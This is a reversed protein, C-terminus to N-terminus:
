ALQARKRLQPLYLTTTIAKDPLEEIEELSFWEIKECKQSEV